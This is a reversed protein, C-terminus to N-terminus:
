RQAGLAILDIIQDDTLETLASYGDALVADALARKHKLLEDVRDELTNETILPHVTVTRQQGLRHARDIAQSEKAPNWPRDFLVVHNAQTLTLGTGGAKVTM